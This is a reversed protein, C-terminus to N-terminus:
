ADLQSHGQRSQSAVRARLRFPASLRCILRITPSFTKGITRRAYVSLRGSFSIRLTGTRWSAGGMSRIVTSINKMVKQETIINNDLPEGRRVMYMTRLCNILKAISQASDGFKTPMSRTHWRVPGYVNQQSLRTPSQPWSSIANQRTFCVCVRDFGDSLAIPRHELVVQSPRRCHRRHLRVLFIFDYTGDLAAFIAFIFYILNSSRCCM